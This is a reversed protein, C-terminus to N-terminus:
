GSIDVGVAHWGKKNVIVGAKHKKAFAIHQSCFDCDNTILSKAEKVDVVIIEKPLFSTFFVPEQKQM